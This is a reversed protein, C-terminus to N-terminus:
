AGHRRGCCRKFKKGSGCLCLDNRGVATAVPPAVVPVPRPRDQVAIHPRPPAADHPFSRRGIAKIQDYRQRMEVLQYGCRERWARAIKEATHADDRSFEIRQFEGELTFTAMLLQEINVRRSRGREETREWFELHVTRCDCTPNVCYHDEILYDRGDQNFFFGFQQANKTVGGDKYVVESYALVAGKLSPEAKYTELRLKAQRQEHRRDIMQQWGTDLFRVLFERVLADISAPRKRHRREVGRRLDVQIEFTLPPDLRGGSLDVETFTLWVDTCTCGLDLCHRERVAFPHAHGSFWVMNGLEM